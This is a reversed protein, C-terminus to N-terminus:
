ANRLAIRRWDADLTSLLNQGNGGSEMASQVYNGIPISQPLYTQPGQYFRGADVYPQLQEIRPDTAAPANKTVGYSLNDKCYANHIDDQMLWQLFDRSAEPNPAATPIWFALDLNVRIQRDGADDTMPLPFTGLSLDPSTKAIETFAWPGQFYMASQGKAFALNGDAYARTGADKNMYTRLEIMRATPTAFTKQFSVSSDPGVDTGEADLKKYFGAVDVYGGNAYDFAGQQLTWVDKFTAYIPLVGNAQLTECVQKMEAWTTPIEVENDRFIKKNYIVAAGTISYPLVSTRGPFTAFQNVLAQVSPQITKAEPLDSLDSLVGRAVYRSAELNYNYLALDPVNGRVFQPAVTSTADHVVYVKSQEANYKKILDDFYGIVEPKTELFRISTRGQGSPACGALGIAVAGAGVGGLLARRSITKKAAGSAIEQASAYPSTWFRSM